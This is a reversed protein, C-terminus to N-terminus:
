AASKVMFVTCLLLRKNEGNTTMEQNNRAFDALKFAPGRFEGQSDGAGRQSYHQGGPVM